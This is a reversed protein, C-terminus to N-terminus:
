RDIRNEIQTPRRPPTIAVNLTHSLLYGHGKYVQRELSTKLISRAGGENAIQTAAYEILAGIPELLVVPMVDLGLKAVFGRRTLYV